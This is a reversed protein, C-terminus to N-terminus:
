KILKEHSSFIDLIRKDNRRDPILKLNYPSYDLQVTLENSILLMMPDIVMWDCSASSYSPWFYGSYIIVNNAIIAFAIGHVSHKLSIKNKKQQM